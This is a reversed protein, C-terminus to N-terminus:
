RPLTMSWLTVDFRDLGRQAWRSAPDQALDLTRVVDPRADAFLGRVEDDTVAHPPGDMRAPDYDISTLYVLAGPALRRLQAAYDGRRSPPVAVIAARDWVRDFPGVAAPLAFFDACWVEIREATHVELGHRQEVTATRGHEEFLAEVAQRVIEVGIVEHGQDALWPVDWSKGCLPVLVRHPGGGLFTGDDETLTPHVQAQHFGIRGSLWREGWFALPDDSM